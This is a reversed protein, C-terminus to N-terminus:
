KKLLSKIRALRKVSEDAIFPHTKYDRYRATMCLDYLWRYNASATDGLESKILNITSIHKSPKNAGGAYHGNYYKDFNVYDIGKIKTPFIEHQLFHLASYFATTVVWDCYNGENHLFKCADENHSAHAKKDM